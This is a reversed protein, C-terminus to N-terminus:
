LIHFFPFHRVLPYVADGNRAPVHKSRPFTDKWLAQAIELYANADWPEGYCAFHKLFRPVVFVNWKHLDTEPPLDSITWHTKIGGSRGTEDGSPRNPQQTM